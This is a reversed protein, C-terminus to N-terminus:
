PGPRNSAPRLMSVGAVVPLVALVLYAGSYSGGLRLIEGYVVPGAMSGGFTIFQTAGAVAALESPRCRRALEAFFVGNWGMATAACVMAALVSLSTLVAGGSLGAPRGIWALSGLAALGFGAAIGLWGLLRGPDIWRDGAHGWLIRSGTSVVQSASLVGAALALSEGLQLNLYSVLFTLFVLQTFAFAFSSLSLRRLAPSKLVRLLAPSPDRGSPPATAAAGAAANRSRAPDLLRRARFLLVAMALCIGALVTLSPRWGITALGLPLAIGALAVGAPVGAQKMSFFFGRRAPPSHHGLLTAAAPNIVGYGAGALMAAALLAPALGATIALMGLGFGLLAVQSVGVAGLAAVGRGVVLGSLMAALYVVGIFIGVRDVGFGLTPAVAPALVAPVALCFSGLTQVLLTTGLTLWPRKGAPAEPRRGPGPEPDPGPGSEPM